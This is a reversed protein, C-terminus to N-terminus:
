SIFTKSYIPLTNTYPYLGVISSQRGRKNRNHKVKLIAFTFKEDADLHGDRLAILMAVKGIYNVVIPLQSIYLLVSFWPPVLLYSIKGLIFCKLQWSLSCALMLFVINNMSLKFNEVMWLLFNFISHSARGAFGGNPAGEGRPLLGNQLKLMKECYPYSFSFNKNTNKRSIEIEFTNKRQLCYFGPNVLGVFWIQSPYLLVGTQGGWCALNSHFICYTAM